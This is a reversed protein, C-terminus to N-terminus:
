SNNDVLPVLAHLQVIEVPYKQIKKKLMHKLYGEAYLMAELIAPSIKKNDCLIDFDNYIIPLKQHFIIQDYVIKQMMDIFCSGKKMVEINERKTDLSYIIDMTEIVSSNTNVVQLSLGTDAYLESVLKEYALPMDSFLTIHNVKDALLCIVETTKAIDGEIIGVEISELPKLLLHRHSLYDLVKGCLLTKVMEGRIPTLLTFPNYTIAQPFVVHTIDKSLIQKEIKHWFQQKRKEELSDLFDKPYPIMIELGQVGNIEMHQYVLKPHKLQYQFIIQQIGLSFNNQKVLANEDFYLCAYLSM